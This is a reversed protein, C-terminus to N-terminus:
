NLKQINRKGTSRQFYFGGFNHLSWVGFQCHESNWTVFHFHNQSALDWNDQITGIIHYRNLRDHGPSRRAAYAGHYNNTWRDSWRLVEGAMSELTAAM